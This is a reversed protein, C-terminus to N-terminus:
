FDDELVLRDIPSALVRMRFGADARSLFWRYSCFPYDEPRSVLGHHVPNTHVYHLRALYAREYTLCTDWYNHWVRRGPARDVRNVYRGSISHVARVLSALNTGDDPSRAICHYHNPLVAWAELRWGLMETRQVLARCLFNKKDAEKLLHQGRWTSATIMYISGQQFLHPPAHPYEKYFVKDMAKGGRDAELLRYV